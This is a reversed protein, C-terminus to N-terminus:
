RDDKRNRLVKRWIFIASGILVISNLVANFSVINWGTSAAGFFIVSNTELDFIKKLASM